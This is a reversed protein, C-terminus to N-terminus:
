SFDIQTAQITGDSQLSGYVAVLAGGSNALLKSAGNAPMNKGDATILTRSSLTVTQGLLLLQKGSLKIADVPGFAVIDSGDVGYANAAFSSGGIGATASGASLILSVALLAPGVVSGRKTKM